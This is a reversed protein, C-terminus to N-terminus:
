MTAHERLLKAVKPRAQRIRPLDIQMDLRKAISTYVKALEPSWDASVLDLPTEGKANKVHISAGHKLFLEVLDPYSFFSAIHMATNGDNNAISLDAGRDILLAAVATQGSVASVNLPTAGSLPERSNVSTGTALSEKVAALNGERAATWIDPASLAKDFYGHASLGVFRAIKEDRLKALESHVKMAQAVQM